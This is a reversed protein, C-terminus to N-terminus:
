KKVKTILSNYIQEFIDSKINMETLIGHNRELLSYFINKAENLGYASVYTLKKSNKDKGATKGLEQTTLTYDIIDDYVQFLVGFNDAYESLKSLIDENVNAIQAGM